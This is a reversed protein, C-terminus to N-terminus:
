EGTPDVTCLTFQGAAGIGAGDEAILCDEGRVRWSLPRPHVACKVDKGSAARYLAHSQGDLVAGTTEPDFDRPVDITRTDSRRASVAGTKLDVVTIMRKM